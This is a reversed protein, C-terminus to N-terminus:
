KGNCAAVQKKTTMLKLYNLATRAADQNAAAKDVGTGYCVAVPLSSIQVLCQIDDSETNEEIEVYTVEFKQEQAIDALMKIFDMGKSVKLSTQHLLFLKNGQQQHLDLYFQQIKKSDDPKLTDIKLDSPKAVTEEVKSDGDTRLKTGNEDKMNQVITMMKAAAERKADKKSTGEGRAELTGVKVKLVFSRQHPQGETADLDYIPMPLGQHVCLEQLQGISNGQAVTTAGNSSVEDMNPKSNAMAAISSSPSTNAAVAPLPQQGDQAIARGDLKDLM